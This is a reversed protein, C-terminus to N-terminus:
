SSPYEVFDPDAQFILFAYALLVYMACRGRRFSPAAWQSLGFCHKSCLFWRFSKFLLCLDAEPRIYFLSAKTSQLLFNGPSEGTM